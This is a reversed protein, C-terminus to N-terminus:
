LNTRLVHAIEPTPPAWGSMRREDSGMVKPVNALEPRLTHFWPRKSPVTNWCRLM